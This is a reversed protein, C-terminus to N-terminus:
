HSIEEIIQRNKGNKKEKDPQAPSAAKHEGQAGQQRHKHSQNPGGDEGVGQGLRHGLGDLGGHGLANVVRHGAVVLARRLHPGGGLILGVPQGLEGQAPRLGQTGGVGHQGGPM